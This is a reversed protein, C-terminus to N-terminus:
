LFPQLVIFVPTIGLKQRNEASEHYRGCVERQGTAHTGQGASTSPSTRNKVVDCLLTLPLYFQADRSFCCPTSASSHKRVIAIEADQVLTRFRALCPRSDVTGM